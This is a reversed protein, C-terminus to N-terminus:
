MRNLKQIGLLNFLNELVIISAKILVIRAQTLQQNQANIVRCQKYFQHFKKLFFNNKLLDTKGPPIDLNVSQDIIFDDVYRDIVMVDGTFSNLRKQYAM